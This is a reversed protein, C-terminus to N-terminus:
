RNAELVNAFRGISKVVNDLRCLNVDVIVVYAVYNNLMSIFVLVHMTIHILALLIYVTVNYPTCKYIQM